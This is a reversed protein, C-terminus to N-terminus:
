VNYIEHKRESLIFIIAILSPIINVIMISLISMSFVKVASIGLLGFLSILTLERTGFGNITIPIQAVLTSVPLILIFYFFDVRIGLSLGVLYIITYDIIWVALNIILVFLLFWISPIDEYFSHFLMRSKEKLKEPILKNYVFRLLIRSNEKKYFLLFCCIMILFILILAYLYEAPLIKKYFVFGFGIVLIFLSCLDLVKDIVFNSVGKGINGSYKKLYNARIATGLKAPTIFGYFNSVLNIKFAERFPINIKQKRAMVFWKLTQLVFLVGTLIIAILLYSPILNKIQNFIEFVNLKIILYIFLAIGAIPLYKKITKWNM